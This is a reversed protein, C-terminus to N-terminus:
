IQTKDITEYLMKLTFEGVREGQGHYNRIGRLPATQDGAEEDSNWGTAGGSGKNQTRGRGCPAPFTIYM